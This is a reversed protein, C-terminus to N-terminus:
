YHDAIKGAMISILLPNNRHGFAEQLARVEVPDGLPTGTGHAELIDVMGPELSASRLSQLVVRRQQEPNPATLSACRGDHNVHSGQLKCLGAESNGPQDLQLMIIGSGEGRVYGDASEDFSRCRGFRSLMGAQCCNISVDPALMLNVGGSLARTCRGKALHFRALDCTVLSTSCATAVPICPGHLDLRDAIRGGLVSFCNGTGAYLNHAVESQLLDQRLCFVQVHRLRSAKRIYHNDFFLNKTAIFVM